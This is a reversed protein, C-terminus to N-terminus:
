TADSKGNSRWISQQHFTSKKLIAPLPNERIGFLVVRIAARARAVIHNKQIIVPRRYIPILFSGVFRQTAMSHRVDKTTTDSTVM